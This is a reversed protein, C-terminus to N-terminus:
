CTIHIVDGSKTNSGLMRPHILQLTNRRKAPRSDFDNVDELMGTVTRGVSFGLCQQNLHWRDRLFFQRMRAIPRVSRVRLRTMTEATM